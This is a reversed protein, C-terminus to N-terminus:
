APEFCIWILVSLKRGRFHLCHTIRVDRMKSRADLPM